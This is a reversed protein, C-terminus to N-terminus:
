PCYWLAAFLIAIAGVLAWRFVTALLAHHSPCRHNLCRKEMGGNVLTLPEFCSGCRGGMCRSCYPVHSRYPEFYSIDKNCGQCRAM